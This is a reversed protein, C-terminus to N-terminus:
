ISKARGAPNSSTACRGSVYAVFAHAGIRFVRDYCKEPIFLTCRAMFNVCLVMQLLFPAHARLVTHM